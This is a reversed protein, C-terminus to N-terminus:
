VDRWITGKTKEHKVIGSVALEANANGKNCRGCCPCIAVSGWVRVIAFEYVSGEVTEEM